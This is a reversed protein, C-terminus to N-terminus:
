VDALPDVVNQIDVVTEELGELRRQLDELLHLIIVHTREADIGVPSDDSAIISRIRDYDDRPVDLPDSM